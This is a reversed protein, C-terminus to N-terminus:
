KGGKKLKADIAAKKKAVSKWGAADPVVISRRMRKKLTEYWEPTTFRFIYPNERMGAFYCPNMQAYKWMTMYQEESIGEAESPVLESVKPWGDESLGRARLEWKRFAGYALWQAKYPDAARLYIDYDVPEPEDADIEVKLTVKWPNFAYSEATSHEEAHKPRAIKKYGYKKKPIANPNDITM